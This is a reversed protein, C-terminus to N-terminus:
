SAKRTASRRQKRGESAPASIGLLELVSVLGDTADLVAEITAKQGGRGDILRRLTPRSIGTRRAFASLTEGNASLYTALTM